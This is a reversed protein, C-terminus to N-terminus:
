SCLFTIHFVSLRIATFSIIFAVEILVVKGMDFNHTTLIRLLSSVANNIFRYLMNLLGKVLGKRM